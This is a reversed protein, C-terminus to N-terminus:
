RVPRVSQGFCRDDNYWDEENSSFYLGYARGEYGEFITSAWYFGNEGTYLDSYYIGGAAPIFITGGNSGTFKKGAVGNQSIWESTTNDLLEQIQTQTPMHWGGGWKVHAVDYKTGTIDSGIDHRTDESGDCHKYTSWDYYDKEETEGWAYYGGYAEPKDAGLNCCSWLTGSPLGLDILHPHRGNPCTFYSKDEDDNLIINVLEVVDSIDVNGDKNVDGPKTSQASVSVAILSLLVLFTFYKKM